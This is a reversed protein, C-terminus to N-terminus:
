RRGRRKRERMKKAETVPGDRHLHSVIERDSLDDTVTARAQQSRAASIKELADGRDIM